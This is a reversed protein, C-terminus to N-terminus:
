LIGSGSTGGRKVMSNWFQEDPAKKLLGRKYEEIFKDLLPLLADCWTQGFAASKKGASQSCRELILAEAHARLLKWDDLTGLLPM